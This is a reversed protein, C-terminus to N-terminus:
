RFRENLIAAIRVAAVSARNLAVERMRVMYTESLQLPNEKTGGANGVSYVDRRAIDFGERV